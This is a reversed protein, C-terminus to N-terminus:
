FTIRRLQSGSFIFGQGNNMVFASATAFDPHRYQRDFGGDRRLVVIRDNPADLFALESGDGFPQATEPAVLRRDIGAQSFTIATQPNPIFRHITGNADSTIYEADVTLRRATSLDPSKLAVAPADAFGNATPAFRYITSQSSDLVFLQTGYVAIDSISLSNPAAFAMSRVQGGESVSWLLNSSDAILLAAEGTPSEGMQAIAVPRARKEDKSEAFVVKPEGGALPVSIVQGSNVDLLYAADASVAMRAVAVQKTGFQELSAITEVAAPEKINDMLALAGAVQSILEETQPSTGRDRVELLMAQAESLMERKQAPDVQNNSAAIREQAGEMLSALQARDDGDLLQPVTAIGAIVVLALLGALILMWAPPLQGGIMTRKGISGEGKWRGGMNSRPRILPAGGSIAATDEPPLYAPIGNARSTRARQGAALEAVLPLDETLLEPRTKPTENPVLGRSFSRTKHPKGNSHAVAETDPANLLDGPDQPPPLPTAERWAPRYTEGDDRNAEATITAMAARSRAARAAGEAALRTISTASDGSARLLPTPAEMVLMPAPGDISRRPTIELLQSRATVVVSQDEDEIFLSPQFTSEHSTGPDNPEEEGIVYDGAEDAHGIPADPTHAPASHPATVLVATVQPMESVRRYLDPLIQEVPLALIGAILEDDLERTAHSSILLLRDGAEFPIRTLQPQVPAVGIPRAHEGETFYEIMSGQHLHFAVTPGAQAIVAQDGRRGFASLGVSVRHQVISKRNWDKLNREAELFLRGLSGTLSMDLSAFTQGLDSIVHGAFAEGAPTTGEALLFLEARDDSPGKGRFVGANPGRDVPEGDVIAFQGVQLPETM